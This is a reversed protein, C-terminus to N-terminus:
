NVNNDASPAFSPDARLGDLDDAVNLGSALITNMVRLETLIQNLLDDSTNIQRGAGDLRVRDVTGSPGLGGIAVLGTSAATNGSASATGGLTVRLNGSLDTTFQAPINATYTPATSVPVALPTVPSIIGQDAM